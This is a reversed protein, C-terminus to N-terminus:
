LFSTIVWISNITWMLWYLTIIDLYSNPDIMIDIANNCKGTINLCGNTENMYDTNCKIVDMASEGIYINTSYLSFIILIISLIPMFIGLLMM